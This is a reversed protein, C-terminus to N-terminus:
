QERKTVQSPRSPRGTCYPCGADGCTDELWQDCNECYFTDHQSHYTKLEHCDPCTNRNMDM